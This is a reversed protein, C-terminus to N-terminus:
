GRRMAKQFYRMVDLHGIFRMNGYTRLKIRIKMTEQIGKLPRTKWPWRLLHSSSGMLDFGDKLAAASRRLGYRRLRLMDSPPERTVTGPGREEVGEKFVEKSVGADIFDWPFLEDLSRERTTYFDSTWAAPRM